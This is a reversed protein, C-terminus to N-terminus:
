FWGVNQSRYSYLLVHSVSWQSYAEPTEGCFLLYVVHHIQQRFLHSSQSIQAREPLHYIFADINLAYLPCM